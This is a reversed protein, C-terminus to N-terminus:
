KDKYKLYPIFESQVVVIDSNLQHSIQHSNCSRITSWKNNTYHSSSSYIYIKLVKLVISIYIHVREVQYPYKHLKEFVKGSNLYFESNVLEFM